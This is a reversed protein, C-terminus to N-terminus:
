AVACVGPKTAGTLVSMAPPLVGVSLALDALRQRLELPTDPTLWILTLDEPLQRSAMHQKANDLCEPLSTWRAFLNASLGAAEAAPVITKAETKTLTALTSNGQLRALAVLTEFPEERLSTIGVTRGYYTFHPHDGFSSTPAPM